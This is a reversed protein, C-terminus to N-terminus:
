SAPRRLRWYTLVCAAGGLGLLVWLLPWKLGVMMGFALAALWHAAAMWRRRPLSTM